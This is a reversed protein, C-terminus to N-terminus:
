DRATIWTNAEAAVQEDTYDDDRLSRIRAVLQDATFTVVTDPIYYERVNEDPSWGVWSFDSKGFYGGDEVWAPVKMGEETKVMKYEIIM